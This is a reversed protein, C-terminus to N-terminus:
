QEAKVAKTDTKRSVSGDASIILESNPFDLKTLRSIEKIVTNNADLVPGGKGPQRTATIQADIFQGTSSVNVKIIPAIGLNGSLTFSGYTCFNGLSYAIFRDKYLDIARTVHPGHGFVIDAGADIAMYAFEKPNGRNEGLYYETKGTVRTKDSGEAGGHFSVIVIDSQAKLGRIIRRAGEYDNIQITGNNPAFACFGYRIGDKQFTVSPYEDIGAYKIGLEDLKAVTNRRGAAGFDGSHNNALSMVDFGADSLYGAYHDPSKFAFCTAPNACRKPTGKGTLIVGELNGFSLDASALIHKVPEFLDRGDNPPLTRSSPYNTGMMIDGVGIVSISRTPSVFDPYKAELQPMRGIFKFRGLYHASKYYDEEVIGQSSCHIMHLGNADNEVVMGVHGIADSNGTTDSFFILDGALAESFSIQRSSAGQLSATRPIQIGHLSYIYQVFGSCDMADGSPNRFKRPQGLYKRSTDVMSQTAEGYTKASITAEAKGPFVYWVLAFLVIVLLLSGALIGKKYLGFRNKSISSKSM